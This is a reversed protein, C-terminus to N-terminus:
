LKQQKACERERGLGVGMMPATDARAKGREVCFGCVLSVGGGHRVGGPWYCPCGGSEDRSEKAVGTKIDTRIRSVDVTSRKREDEQDGDSVRQSAKEEVSLV